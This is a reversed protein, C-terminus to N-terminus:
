TKEPPTPIFLIRTWYFPAKLGWGALVTLPGTQRIQLWFHALLWYIRLSQTIGASGWAVSQLRFSIHVRSDAFDDRHPGHNVQSLKEVSIQSVRPAEGVTVIPSFLYAWIEAIDEPDLAVSLWRGWPIWSFTWLEIRGEESYFGPITMKKERFYFVHVKELCSALIWRSKM